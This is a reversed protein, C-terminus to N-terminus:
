GPRRQLHLKDLVFKGLGSSDDHRLEGHERGSSKRRRRSFGAAVKETAAEAATLTSVFQNNRENLLAVTATRNMTGGLIILSVASITMVMLLAYGRRKFQAQITFKM